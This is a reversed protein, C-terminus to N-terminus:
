GESSEPPSCCRTHAAGMFFFFNEGVFKLVSARAKALAGSNSSRSSGVPSKSVLFVISIMSKINSM